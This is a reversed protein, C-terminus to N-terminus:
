RGRAGGAPSRRPCARTRRSRRATRRRWSTARAGGAAAAARARGRGGPRRRRRGRARAAAAAARADGVGGAAAERRRRRRGADREPPSYSAADIFSNFWGNLGSRAKHEAEAEAAAAARAAADAAEEDRREKVARSRRRGFIGRVVAQVSAAADSARVVMQVQKARVGKPPGREGDDRQGVGAAAAKIHLLLEADPAAVPASAPDARLAASVHLEDQQLLAALPVECTGMPPDAALHASRRADRVAIPLLARGPPRLAAAPVVLVFTEDWRPNISQESTATCLTRGGFEMQVFAEGADGRVSLVGRASRVTVEVKLRRAKLAHQLEREVSAELPLWQPLATVWVLSHNSPLAATLARMAEDGILNYAVDLLRLGSLHPLARAFAEAWASGLGVNVLQCTRLTACDRIASGLTLQEPLSARAAAADHLLRLAKPGGRSMDRLAHLAEPVGGGAEAAPELPAGGGTAEPSRRPPQALRAGEDASTDDASWACLGRGGGGSDRYLPADGGFWSAAAPPSPPSPPPSAAAAALAATARSLSERRVLSGRRVAGAGFCAREHNRLANHLRAAPGGPAGAAGSSPASKSRPSRRAASRRAM